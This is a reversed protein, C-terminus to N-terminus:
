HGSYKEKLKKEIYQWAEDFDDFFEEETTAPEKSGVDHILTGFAERCGEGLVCAIPFHNEILYVSEIMDGWVYNLQRFDFIVASAESMIMGFERKAMMYYADINGAGGIKYNGAFSIVLITAHSTQSTGIWFTVKIGSMKDFDVKELESECSAINKEPIPKNAYETVFAYYEDNKNHPFLYSFMKKILSM